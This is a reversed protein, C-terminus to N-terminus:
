RLSSKGKAQVAATLAAVLWHYSEDIDYPMGFQGNEELLAFGHLAARIGRIAHVFDKELVGFPALGRCLTDLLGVAVKEPLADKGADKGDAKEQAFASGGVILGLLGCALVLQNGVSSQRRGERSGVNIFYGLNLTLM